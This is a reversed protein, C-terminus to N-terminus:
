VEIGESRELCWLGNDSYQYQIDGYANWKSEKLNLFIFKVERQKIEMAFYFIHVVMSHATHVNAFVGFLFTQKSNELSCTTEDRM